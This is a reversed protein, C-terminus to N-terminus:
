AATGGRRRARDACRAARALKARLGASQESKWGEAALVAVTPQRLADILRVLHQASAAFEELQLDRSAEESWQPKEEM